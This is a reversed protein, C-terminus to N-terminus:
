AKPWYHVEEDAPFSFLLLPDFQLNTRRHLEALALKLQWKEFYEILQSLAISHTGTAPKHSTLLSQQLHGFAFVALFFGMPKPDEGEDEFIWETVLEEPVDLNTANPNSRIWAFSGELSPTTMKKM